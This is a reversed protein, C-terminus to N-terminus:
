NRTLNHRTMTAELMRGMPAPPRVRFFVHVSVPRDGYTPKLVEPVEYFTVDGGVGLDWGWPRGLLRVAGITVTTVTDKGEGTEPVHAPPKGVFSHVGFRLLDSEVQVAELRGYLTNAGSVHTGEALFANFDGGLENNRGYAVTAASWGRDRDAMVSASLTTRRVDGEEHAEPNELFGHSAQFTWTSNPRFWGRVSWSDFPGPDMLDWRDEDPEAGHFVSGEVQWPGRDVSATIVGMTIHTSDITHHSLPATPNEYASARHMFAVPGLAPEGVPAGALTLAYGRGLPKRWVAAAQMLFEHPHQHDILPFGDLTEGTQFIERYGDPGLTAPEVSLMLNFALTSGGPKSRQVMGMWWNQVALEDGGRDGGQHNYNFFVVGDQMFHWGGAQMAAHDHQMSPPQAVAAAPIGGLLLVVGWRRILRM